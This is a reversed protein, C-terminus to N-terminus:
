EFYSYPMTGAEPKKRDRYQWLQASLSMFCYESVMSRCSYLLNNPDLMIIKRDSIIETYIIGIQFIPCKEKTFAIFM